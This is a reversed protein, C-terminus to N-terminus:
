ADVLTDNLSADSKSDTADFQTNLNALFAVKLTNM